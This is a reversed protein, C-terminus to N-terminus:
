FRVTLTASGTFDRNGHRAAAYNANARLAIRGDAWEHAAGLGLRAWTAEAEAEFPRDAATTEMAGSLERELDLTAFMAGAAGGPLAASEARVGARATIRRGADLSVRENVSDTFSSMEVMSWDAGARPTLTVRGLELRRGIEVGAAYGRGSLDRALAGELAADSDLDAEYLTAAAQASVYINEAPLWAGSIRAGTGTIEVRGGGAETDANTDVDARGRVHHVSIAFVGREGAAGEIGAEFGFRRYDHHAQAVSSAPHRDGGAADLRAFAGRPAGAAALRDGHAPLANLALLVSPLAEYVRHRPAPGVEIRGDATIRLEMDARGERKLVVAGGSSDIRGGGIRQAAEEDSEGAAATITVREAVIDDDEIRGNAGVTVAGRPVEVSQVAGNVEVTSGTGALAVRGDIEGGAGVTVTSAAAADRAEVAGQVAGDVTMDLAGTEAVVAVRRGQADEAGVLEGTGPITVKSGAPVDLTGEARGAVFISEVGEVNGKFVGSPQVTLRHVGGGGGIVDGTLANAVTVALDGPGADSVSGMVVGNVSVTLDGDASHAARGDLGTIRGGSGVDITGGRGFRVSAASGDVTVTSAALHILGEVSGGSKVHVDHEGGGLGFIGGEVTGSVDVKLDGDGEGRIDGTVTAMAAVDVSLDGAAGRIAERGGGETEVGAISGTAAVTVSGGNDYLVRGVRGAITMASAPLHVTGTVAGGAMVAVAHSGAGMGRIGGTVTGTVTATLDGAGREEIDGTMRGAVSAVLDGAELDVIDGTVMGGSAVTVEHKGAGKGHIAGTVAGSVNVTMAGAGRGEIRGAVAGGSAVSVTLDGADARIAEGGVGAIRGTAAVTLAGGNDFLVRGAAGRITTGSKPNHVTGLVRAKEAIEITHVGGGRGFIEGNITGTESVTVTLDGDGRAEINGTVTGHVTVALDGADGRIAEKTGDIDLGTIEGSANVTVAGGNDYHVRGVAGSVTLAAGAPLRVTGAVAGSSAVTVTHEGAGEGVVGGTVTGAVTVDLDGAGREAIDGTLAGAVDVELNGAGRGEVLGTVAGNAAVTVDLNGADARIAETTGDNDVGTVAGGGAVTVTGGNDYLIRGVSGGVTMPSAPNRITGTVVGGAMVNATLAGDGSPRLGGEIRGAVTVSLDGSAARITETAGDIAIGTIAGGRAVTVTGGGAYLIRGVSGGVTMPSAPNHITGTVVGGANVTASLTGGSEIDGEVRGEDNVTVTLAGATSEAAVGEVGTLKAGGAVTVAGGSAYLVRGVSGSVTFSAQPDHITGTVVGGADITASLTGGSKVDGEVRGEDNVTVTLAGGSDTSEAAVGEVGTLTGGGSVTVTGGSSGTYLIRGIRAGSGVTFSAQPDEITGTVVGGDDVTVMLTGGSEIDAEVRGRNQVTVTLAGATSEIATGSVGTLKAGGAVTVTGGSAYLVRGVSGSVTFSAQPDHITGTVVGGAEVTAMLTGGSKVDGEVRGEDRVTVTLAGATSEAAVGEVGTLTGGGAVTVTGGSAYLVRGVSGSVTFSGQPNHITGTVVGGANVTASLTGGSKVDGEVRIGDNVTVTLAGAASEIAVGEVGTLTGSGSVTVTGGSSYLIRGISGAVALATQPNHITGTVVGGAMVNATLSGGGDVRIDGTVTGSVATTLAGGGDGLIAVGSTASVEGGAGVTVAGGGFMHVGAGTGGMARGNVTVSQARLGGTGAGAGRVHLGHAGGTVRAGASVTVAIKGNSDHPVAYLAEVGNGEADISGGTIDVQIDGANYTAAHQRVTNKWAATYTAGTLATLATELGSSDGTLVATLAAREETSLANGARVHDVIATHSLAYARVGARSLGLIEEAAAHALPGNGTAAATAAARKRRLDEAEAKWADDYSAPLAALATTLASSDNDTIATLVAQEATSLTGDEGTIRARIFAETVPAGVTIDGSSTVHIMPTTRAADDTPSPPTAGMTHGSSRRAWALVGVDRAEVAGGHAFVLRGTASADQTLRADMGVAFPAAITAGASTMADVSGLNVTLASLGHSGLGESVISGGTMRFSATQGTAFVPLHFYVGRSNDAETVISGGTMRFSADRSGSSSTLWVGSSGSGRTRVSGGEIVATMAAAAAANNNSRLFFGASDAGTAEVSGGEMRISLEDGLGNSVVGVGFQANQTQRITADGSVAIRGNGTGGNRNINLRGSLSGGSMGISVNGTATNGTTIFVDNTLSGGSVEISAAGSGRREALISNGGSGALAGAKMRVTIDGSGRHDAHIRPINVSGPDVVIHANSGAVETCSISTSGTHAGGRCADQAAAEGAWLVLALLLGPALARVSMARGERAPPPIIQTGNHAPAPAFGRYPRPMTM